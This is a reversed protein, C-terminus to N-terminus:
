RAENKLYNCAIPKIVDLKMYCGQEPNIVDM